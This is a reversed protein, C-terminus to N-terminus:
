GRIAGDVTSVKVLWGNEDARFVDGPKYLHTDKTTGDRQKGMVEGDWDGEIRFDSARQHIRFDLWMMSKKSEKLIDM